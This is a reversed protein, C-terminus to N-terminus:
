KNIRNKIARKCAIDLGLDSCIDLWLGDNSALQMNDGRLIRFKCQQAIGGKTRGMSEEADSVCLQM